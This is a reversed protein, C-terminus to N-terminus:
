LCNLPLIKKYTHNSFQLMSNADDSRDAMPTGTSSLALTINEAFVHLAAMSLM